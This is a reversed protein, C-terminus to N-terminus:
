QAGTLAKLDELEVSPVWVLEEVVVIFDESSAAMDGMEVPVFGVGLLDRRLFLLLLLLLLFLFM